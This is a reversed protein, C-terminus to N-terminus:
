TQREPSFEEIWGPAPQSADNPIVAFMLLLLGLILQNQAAATAGGFGHWYAFVILWSGVFLSLLHAHRTPRWYSFLGFVIVAAGCALDNVWLATSGAPHAFLFPSMLLWCGLMVEVVRSWM